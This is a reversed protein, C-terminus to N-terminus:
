VKIPRYHQITGRAYDGVRLLTGKRGTNKEKDTNVTKLAKM